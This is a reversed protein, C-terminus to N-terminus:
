DRKGRDGGRPRYLGNREILEQVAAPLYGLTEQALHLLPILRESGGPNRALYEDIKTWIETDIPEELGAQEAGFFGSPDQAPLERPDIIPRGNM